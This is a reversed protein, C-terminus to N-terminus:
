VAPAMYINPTAMAIIAGASYADQEIFTYTPIEIKGIIDIIEKAANVAGGPTDMEFIIADANKSVADNVGRRIVYVLAPEIMDRIPVIYVLPTENTTRGKAPLSLLLSTLTFLFIRLM